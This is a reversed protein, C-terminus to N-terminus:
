ISFLISKWNMIDNWLCLLKDCVCVMQIYGEEDADLMTKVIGAETVVKITKALEWGDNEFLFITPKNVFESKIVTVAETDMPVSIDIGSFSQFKIYGPYLAAAGHINIDTRKPRQNLALSKESLKQGSNDFVSRIVTSDRYEVLGIYGEGVQIFSDSGIKKPCLSIGDLEGNFEHDSAFLEYNSKSNEEVTEILIKDNSTLFLKGWDNMGQFLNGNEKYSWEQYTCDLKNCSLERIKKWLINGEATVRMICDYSNGGNKGLWKNYKGQILFDGNKYAYISIPELEEDIEVNFLFKGRYDLGVIAFPPYGSEPSLHADCKVFIIRNNKKDIIHIKSKLYHENQSPTDNYIEGHCMYIIEMDDNEKLEYLIIKEDAAQQNLIYIQEKPNKLIISRGAFSKLSKM